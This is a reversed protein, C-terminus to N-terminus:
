LVNRVNARRDPISRNNKFTGVRPISQTHKRSCLNLKVVRRTHFQSKISKLSVLLLRLYLEEKEQPSKQKLLFTNEWKRKYACIETLWYQVVFNCSCAETKLGTYNKVLNLRLCFLLALKDRLRKLNKEFNNCKKMSLINSHFFISPFPWALVLWM